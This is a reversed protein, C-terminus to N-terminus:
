RMMDALANRMATSPIGFLGGYPVDMELIVFMAVTVSIACLAIVIVSMSNPPARLGFSAFLIVLWLVLVWYFPTSISGRVGEIVGWRRGILEGYQASCSAMLNRHLVDAPELSNLELGVHGILTALVPNEGTQQMHSIDPYAVGIPAPETPWTSAIVAAVYSRLEERMPQAEAGYDRLCRDFQAFQGAYAGRTNYAADFGSKVSTTLLGLVIATFTVLLSVALQMLEITDRSKHKEQLRAGVFFGAAASACLLLLLFLSSGFNRM